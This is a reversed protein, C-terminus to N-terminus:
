EFALQQLVLRTSTFNICAAWSRLVGADHSTFEYSHKTGKKADKPSMVFSMKNNRAIVLCAEDRGSLGGIVKAHVDFLPIEVEIEKQTADRWVRLNTKMLSIFKKVKKKQLKMYVPGTKSLEPHITFDSSCFSLQVPQAKFADFLFKTYEYSATVVQTLMQSFETLEMEGYISLSVCAIALRAIDSASFSTYSNAHVYANAFAAFMARLSKMDKPLAVESFLLRVVEDLSLFDIDISSFFWYFNAEAAKEDSVLFATLARPALGKCSVLYRCLLQVNNNPPFCDSQRALDIAAHCNVNFLQAFNAPYTFNDNPWRAGQKVPECAKQPDNTADM